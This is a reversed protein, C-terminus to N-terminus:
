KTGALSIVGRDVALVETGEPCAFDIGQHGKWGWQAFKKKVGENEPIEGFGLSIKGRGELPHNLRIGDDYFRYPLVGSSKM